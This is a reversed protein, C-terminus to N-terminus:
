KKKPAPDVVDETIGCLRAADKAFDEIPTNARVVLRGGDPSGGGHMCGPIGAGVTLWECLRAARARTEASYNVSAKIAKMVKPGIVPHTCDKYSPFCGTEVLGGGIEQCLRKTEYPLTGVHVKNAHALKSDSIWSGSPHKYGCAMAGIGMGYTTENNIAMQIIKDNFPRAALGNARAILVSAGIMIDGQGAVCAGIPARYNATFYNIVAGSYKYERCMFVRENPVFVDEFILYVSNTATEVAKDWGEELERSDSPKRCGVITLGEIDRPVVFSVAYDADAEKYGSGPLLFIENSAETGCIMTKYGSVVIGDPRVEKIRVNSDPNETQSPRMSRDGKADTLAAAVAWGNEQSKLIWNKLREQYNTGLEKDIDHTVAWMVNQANWGVCTAGSCTGTNRYSFRKFNSNAMIDDLSQMLSNWRHIPEGTLKSTTTCIAASEPDNSADYARATSEVVGRTAPHTTIDQILEGGRWVNPRMAKLSALYQERTKIAM